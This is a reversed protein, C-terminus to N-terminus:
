SLFKSINFKMIYCVQCTEINSPEQQETPAPDDVAMEEDVLLEPGHQKVKKEALTEELQNPFEPSRARPTPAITGGVHPQETIGPQKTVYRHNFYVHIQFWYSM